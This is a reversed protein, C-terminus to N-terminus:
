GIVSGRRGVQLDGPLSRAIAHRFRVGTSHRSLWRLYDPDHGALDAIRWGSYRGFDIVEGYAGQDVGM